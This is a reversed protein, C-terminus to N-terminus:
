FDGETPATMEFGPKNFGRSHRDVSEAITQFRKWREVLVVVVVVM